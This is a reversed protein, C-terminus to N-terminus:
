FVYGFSVVGFFFFGFCYIVYGYFNVFIRDSFINEITGELEGFETLFIVIQGKRAEIM